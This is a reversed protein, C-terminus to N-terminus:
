VSTQYQARYVNKLTSCFTCYTFRNGWRRAILRRDSGSQASTPRKVGEWALRRAGRVQTM